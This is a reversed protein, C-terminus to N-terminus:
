CRQISLVNLSPPDPDRGHPGPAWAPAGVRGFFPLLPAGGLMRLLMMLALALVAMCTATMDMHGGPVGEVVSAGVATAAGAVDHVVTAMVEHVSMPPAALEVAAPEQLTFAHVGSVMGGSHSELGHMGVIGALLILLGGFWLARRATTGSRDQLSM